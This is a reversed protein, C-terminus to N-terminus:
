LLMAPDAMLPDYEEMPEEGEEDPAAPIPQSSKMSADDDKTADDAEEDGFHVLEHDLGTFGQPPATTRQVQQAARPGLVAFTNHLLAAVLVSLIFGIAVHVARERM